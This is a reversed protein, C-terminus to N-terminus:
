ATEGQYSAAIEDLAVIHDGVVDQWNRNILREYVPKQLALLEEKNKIAWEIRAAMDKWDYPDFFMPQLVADNLIEMAVPIRSMVAPTDVSVAETFTFPCGGESLSPNVAVDALRYFAALETVTLGRLCLVDNELRHESIFGAVDDSMKQDGTLILKHNIQRERLLYEYARLLTLVNKNPRFQSAYFIFKVERNQFGNVYAYNSSKHLAISLLSRCYELSVEQANALDKIVIWADLTNPAHHIVKIKEPNVGYKDVLTAWKIQESYTVFNDNGHIAKEVDEFNKLSGEGEMMSFGIPFDTLVVDPVCMLRPANIRNFSPWFATPSYWAIVKKNANVRKLLLNAEQEEMAQYLNFLFSKGFLLGIVRKIKKKFLAHLHGMSHLVKRISNRHNLMWSLVLFPSSVILLISFYIMFFAFAVPNRALVIRKEAERLNGNVVSLIRRIRGASPRINISKQTLSKYFFYLRLLLPLRPPTDIDFGGLNVGESECLDILNKKSWSPCVVVFRVNELQVAAKLFAALYRGLGEGRLDVYPAYHLYIGYHKVSM